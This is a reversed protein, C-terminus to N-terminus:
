YISKYKPAKSSMQNLQNLIHATDTIHPELFTTAKESKDLTRGILSPLGGGPRVMNTFPDGDRRLARAMSPAMMALISSLFPKTLPNVLENGMKQELRNHYGIAKPLNSTSAARHAFAAPGMLTMALRSLAGYAEQDQSAYLQRQLDAVEDAYPDPKQDALMRALVDQTSLEPDLANRDM